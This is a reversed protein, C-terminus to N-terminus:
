FSINIGLSYTPLVPISAHPTEPDLGRWRKSKWVHLNTAQLRLACSSFGFAEITSKPIMYSLSILRLRLFNTDVVREDSLNYLQTPYLYNISGSQIAIVGENNIFSGIIDKDYIAPISTHLEDGPKKWRNKIEKSVNTLPDFVNNIDEYANPLRRVGGINYSFGIGISLQKKLTIQTDFGGSIKPFISGSNVLELLHPDGLHVKKGEKSYFLPYGNEPSLGAFHFSYMSGIAEGEIATEGRLMMEVTESESYIDKNALTVHNINQAFNFSMNWNITKNRVLEASVFGEFGSNEMKGSNLTLMNRGNHSSVIKSHILDSTNKKYVEFSGKIRSNFFSFDTAINWLNTREWRLDPNPLRFIKTKDLGSIGDKNEISVILEPSSDDHINGQIGYSFRLSWNDMWKLQNFIPEQSFAWKGALSWTPLWRYKPNSGFKNSGDSRINGNLVYRYKYSYSFTGFYSAVQTINNTNKPNLMGQRVYKDVFSNTYVPMFKEGFAPIWGYGTNAIGKYQNSRMEIGAMAHINHTNKFLQKYTATNRITYGMRKTNAENLIGGFPLESNNYEKSTEDHQHYEYRRIKAIYYSEEEAWNRRNAVSNHYSFVGQYSLGKTIKVNIDFLGNFDNIQGSQGTLNLEKFFNYKLGNGKDYLAYSGDENYPALTRSTAYAYKHPNITEHYGNNTTSSFDTKLQIDIYPNISMNIKALSSFRESDSGKAGGNNKNYGVSFYYRSNSSGGTINLNHTNTISSHFIDKYWNTNRTQLMAIKNEFEDQTIRKRYLEQLAGEYSDGSPTRPYKYGLEVIEKSLIMREQSNMRDFNNYSPRQNFSVNGNYSIIAKGSSGKKTTIVIVGNAARVGYIATASADKLVTITEIDQPNLGSIANGILYEADESNLESATFPVTSEVIVGDVVWVPSKNGNITANGRIRIKPTASPEGSTNIVAMGPITGQLMQDVSLAGDMMIDSAKVSFVSSASGRKDLVQYGTVVVEEITAIDEQLIINLTENKIVTREQSKFGIYSFLLVSGPEVIQLSFNGEIDTTTGQNSKKLLITVGILPEGKTDTVQGKVEIAKQQTQKVVKAEEETKKFLVVQRDLVKYKLDAQKSILELIEIIQNCEALFIIPRNLESKAEESLVFIYDTKKEIEQLLEKLASSRKSLIISTEQSFSSEAYISFLGTFIFIILVKMIKQARKFKNLHAIREITYKNM